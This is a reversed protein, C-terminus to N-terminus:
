DDVKMGEKKETPGVGVWDLDDVEVNLDDEEDEDIKLLDFDGGIDEDEDHNAPAFKKWNKDKGFMAIEDEVTWHDPLREYQDPAIWDVRPESCALELAQQRIGAKKVQKACLTIYKRQTGQEGDETPYHAYYVQQLAIRTLAAEDGAERARQELSMLRKQNRAHVIEFVGDGQGRREQNQLKARICSVRREVEQRRGEDLNEQELLKEQRKLRHELNPRNTTTAAAHKKNARNELKAKVFALREQLQERQEPNLDEKALRAQIREVRNQLMNGQLAKLEPAGAKGQQKAKFMSLRHALNQRQKEPTEPDALRQEIHKIRKELTMQIAPKQQLQKAQQKHKLMSLRLAIKKRQNENTEPDALRLEFHKVREELTMQNVPEEKLISLRQMLKQRQKEPTKPNSLRQEMHKVRQALRDDPKEPATGTTEKEADMQTEWQAMEQEAAEAALQSELHAKRKELMKRKEETQSLLRNVKQLRTAVLAQGGLPANKQQNEQKKKLKALRQTLKSRKAPDDVKTLLEDIREIRQQMVVPKNSFNKMTLVKMALYAM